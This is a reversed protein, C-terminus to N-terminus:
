DASSHWPKWIREGGGLEIWHGFADDCPDYEEIDDEFNDQQPIIKKNPISVPITPIVPPQEKKTEVAPKYVAVKWAIAYLFKGTEAANITALAKCNKKGEDTTINLTADKGAGLIGVTNINLNDIGSAEHTVANTPLLVIQGQIKNLDLTTVEGETAIAKKPLEALIKAARDTVMWGSDLVLKKTFLESALHVENAKNPASFSSVLSNQFKHMTEDDSFIIRLNASDLACRFSFEVERISDCGRARSFSTNESIKNTHRGGHMIHNDGSSPGKPNPGPNQNLYNGGELWGEAGDMAWDATWEWVIGTMDACGYPSDGQPSFQGVPSLDWKNGSFNGLQNNPEQEGWPYTRGDTGRAAKEREAETPLRIPVGSIKAAWTCFAAADDWNINVVPNNDEGKPLKEPYYYKSKDVFARFQANTVPYKGIWFEDLHIKWNNKSYLFEGAPIRLLFMDVGPALTLKLENSRTAACRFGFYPGTSILSIQSIPYFPPFGSRYSSRTHSANYAWNGGRMIGDDGRAPGKPNTGPNRKLYNVDWLDSVWEWVNGAMDACGYPSDGQPSFQGVPTTGKYNNLFNCLNIDPEQEGWPYTRGDIGRAAKEWEAETPLRVVPQGIIKTVWNCFASADYRNVCAVPHSEKGDPLQKSYEYGTAQLFARYQANTIPYKGIWYDDLHVKWRTGGYRFEGAPIHKLVMEIGPALIVKMENSDMVVLNEPLPLSEQRKRLEDQIPQKEEETQERQQEEGGEERQVTETQIAPEQQREADDQYQEPVSEAFVVDAKTSIPLSSKESDLLDLGPLEVPSLKAIASKALQHNPNIRLVRELCERKQADSDVCASLWIWANENEPNKKIIEVLIAKGQERNGSKIFQIASQFHVVALIGEKSLV